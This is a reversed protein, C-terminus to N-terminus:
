SRRSWRLMGEINGQIATPASVDAGKTLGKWKLFGVDDRRPASHLAYGIGQPTVIWAGDSYQGRAGLKKNLAATERDLMTWFAVRAGDVEGADTLVLEQHISGLIPIRIRQYFRIQQPPTYRSDPISRSEDVYDINGEYHDVDMVCAIFRDADVQTTPLFGFSEKTPQGTDWSEFSFSHGPNKPLRRLIKQVFSSMEM